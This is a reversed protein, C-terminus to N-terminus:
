TCRYSSDGQFGREEGARRRRGQDDQIGDAQTIVTLAAFSLANCLHQLCYSSRTSLVRGYMKACPCCLHINRGCPMILQMISTTTSQCGGCPVTNQYVAGRDEERNARATLERVGQFVKSRATKYPLSTLVINAVVHHLIRAHGDCLAQRRMTGATLHEIAATNDLRRRRTEADCSDRSRARRESVQVKGVSGREWSLGLSVEEHARERVPRPLPFRTLSPAGLRRESSRCPAAEDGVAFVASRPVWHVQQDDWRMMNPPLALGAVLDGRGRHPSEGSGPTHLRPGHTHSLAGRTPTSSRARTMERLSARSRQAIGADPTLVPTGARGADGPGSGALQEWRM